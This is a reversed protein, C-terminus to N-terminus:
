DARAFEVIAEDAAQRLEKGWKAAVEHSIGLDTLLRRALSQTIKVRTRRYTPNPVETLEATQARDLIDPLEVCQLGVRSDAFHIASWFWEPLANKEKALELTRDLIGHSTPLEGGEDGGLTWSCILLEALEHLRNMKREGNVADAVALYCYSQHGEMIWGREDISIM